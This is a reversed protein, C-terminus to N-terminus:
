IENGAVFAEGNPRSYEWILTTGLYMKQVQTNGIMINSINNSGINIM